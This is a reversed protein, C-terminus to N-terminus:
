YDEVSKVFDAFDARDDAPILETPDTIHAQPTTIKDNFKSFYTAAANRYVAGGFAKYGELCAGNTLLNDVHEQILLEDPTVELGRVASNPTGTAPDAVWRASFTSTDPFAQTSPDACTMERAADTAWDDSVLGLHIPDKDEFSLRVRTGDDSPDFKSDAVKVDGWENPYCFRIDLDENQYRRLKSSCQGDTVAPTKEKNENKNESIPTDKAGDKDDGSMMFAVGVIVLLLFVVGGIIGLVLWNPGKKPRPKSPKDSFRQDTPPVWSDNSQNRADDVNFPKPAEGLTKDPKAPPEQDEPYM